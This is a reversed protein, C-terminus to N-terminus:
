FEEWDKQGDGKALMPAPAPSEAHSGNGRQQPPVRVSLKPSKKVPAVHRAGGGSVATVAPVHARSSAHGTTGTLKFFAMMQTLDAAQEEMSRSAAAAEEVLAANQQTVEDMQMIAKNVQEIGASQEQSAAAIEAVIDSVKKVGGMIEALTKGSEDVLQSGAKVKDVSDNILDKIEKAAGASRQALNRVEGAVVAFGRGQEGARAAEVAANLALLNTQFAIEDIVGIIDAIKKSSASIQDMARVARSVVEGGKEAQERASAALQNAQRANDANQKVTSTMEEMSSATEELASAQEQTRQSLDNNGASIQKAASGVSDSATRARGVIDALKENMNKLAQLLQGTEDTSKVEIVATLDGDAVTGSLRVAENLPKTISRTVFFAILLAVVLAIVAIGIMLNLATHYEASADKGAKEMLEGQFEILKNLSEFYAFQLPRLQTLLLQTADVKKGDTTLRMFNEQVPYYLARADSIGKLMEKGKEDHISKELKDLDETINKKAEDITGIEKKIEAQETMILTNRSSRAVRNIQKIIDNLIVTKPYRDHIILDVNDNLHSLRTVGIVLIMIMLIAIMSFGIGLRVGVKMNSLSM